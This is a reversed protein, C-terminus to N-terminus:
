WDHLFLLSLTELETQMMESYHDQLIIMTTCEWNKANGEILLQSILLNSQLKITTTALNIM